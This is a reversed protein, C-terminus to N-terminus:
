KEDDDDDDNDGGKGKDDDESTEMDIWGDMGGIDTGKRGGKKSVASVPRQFGREKDERAMRKLSAQMAGKYLLAVFIGVLVFTGMGRGTAAIESIRKNRKFNSFVDPLESVVSEVLSRKLLSPDTLRWTTFIWDDHPVRGFLDWGKLKGATTIATAQARTPFTVLAAIVMAILASIKALCSRAIRAGSWRGGNQMPITQQQVSYHNFTTTM